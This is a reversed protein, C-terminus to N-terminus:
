GAQTHAPRTRRRRTTPALERRREWFRVVVRVLLAGLYYGVIQTAIRAAM